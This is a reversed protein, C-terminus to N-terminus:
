RPQAAQWAMFCTQAEDVFGAHRPQWGLLRVAKTADVHQDLALCEAFPGMKAAAEAVPVCRTEGQYGSADAVAQLMEGVTNRSRDTINFVEGSLGREAARVYADALDDAHIMAWQNRGDGIARLAKEAVAGNFWMGTLGGQYGYVCGPRIVIGRVDSAELVMRETDPRASVLGPPNLPSTEDVRKGLTDGYVWVGSTYILTKPQRGEQRGLSILFEVTRRDVQFTDAQYDVAAHVLVSCERAAAAWSEPNQLSGEVPHVEHRALIHAKQASRTLGWVSHGARRFAAAVNLGIYGTAGTVFVNM